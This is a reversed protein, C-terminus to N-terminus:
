TKPFFVIVERFYIPISSTDSGRSSTMQITSPFMIPDVAQFGERRLYQEILDKEKKNIINM